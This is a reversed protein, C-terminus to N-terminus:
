HADGADGADGADNWGYSAGDPANPDVIQPRLGLIATTQATTFTLPPTQQLAETTIDGIFQDFVNGPIGLGAHVKMMDARCLYGDALTTVGGDAGVPPYSDGNGLVAGFQWALCEEIDDLSPSAGTATNPVFYSLVAGANAEIQDTVVLKVFGYIAAHNPKAPPGGDGGDTKPAADTAADLKPAADTGTSGDTGADLKPSTTDDDDGSCAITAMGAAVMLGGVIALNRIKM